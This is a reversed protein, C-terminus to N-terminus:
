KKKIKNSNKKNFINELHTFINILHDINKLIIKNPSKDKSIIRLKIKKVLHDDKSLGSYIINTDDQLINNIINGLTHDENELELLIENSDEIQKNIIDKLADLKMKIILCSKTLMKYENIQGSSEVTFLVKNSENNDVEYYSNGSCWINDVESIGLSAKMHCKFKEKPRLQVLLTPNDPSPEVYKKKTNDIYYDLNNTTVNMLNNTKNEVNIYAEILKEKDHAKYNKNIDDITKINNNELYFIDNDM